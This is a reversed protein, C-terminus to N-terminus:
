RRWRGQLAAEGRAKKEGLVRLDQMSTLLAQRDHNLEDHLFSVEASLQRESNKHQECKVLHMKNIRTLEASHQEGLTSLKQPWDISNVTENATLPGSGVPTSSILLATQQALLLQSKLAEIEARQQEITTDKQRLMDETEKERRKHLDV